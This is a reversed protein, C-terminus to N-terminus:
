QAKEKAIEPNNLKFDAGMVSFRSMLLWNGDCILTLKNRIDKM